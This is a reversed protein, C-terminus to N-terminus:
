RSGRGSEDETTGTGAKPDSSTSEADLAARSKNYYDILASLKTPGTATQVSAPKFKDVDPQPLQIPNQEFEAWGGRLGIEVVRLLVRSLEDNRTTEVRIDTGLSELHENLANVAVTLEGMKSELAELRDDVGDRRKSQNRSSRWTEAIILGAAVSFLFGEALFNSGNQIAKADNLPKVESHTQGLMTERFRIETRWLAQALSICFTRFRQNSRAYTKLQESIPKAITRIALTALKVSAM